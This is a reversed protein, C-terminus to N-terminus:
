YDKNTSITSIFGNIDVETVIGDKWIVPKDGDLSSLGVHLIGDIVKLPSSGMSVYGEPMEFAEGCRFILGEALSGYPNVTCCVGGQIGCLSSVTYGPAFIQNRHGDVWICSRFPMGASLCVGEVGTEDCGPVIRCTLMQSSAPMELASMSTGCFLVPEAIGVVSALYCIENDVSLIDWVKKVDERLAVQRIQGNTVHYYREIVGDSSAVPECFAFCISDRDRHLRNFTRGNQREILVYGNKRFAFGKGQRSQGLTYVDDGDALMGCIMERGPYRFIEKGDKKIVTETDTSYDTFIHGGIMRHMDPDASVEYKDGVPVKMMPIGDAYVVLSCKVSGKEPDARWDYGEPYSVGTVYCVTKSSDQVGANMGPGKWIGNVNNRSGNRVEELGCSFACVSIVIMLIFRRMGNKSLPLLFGRFAATIEDRM